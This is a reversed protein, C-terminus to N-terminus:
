VEERKFHYIKDKGKNFTEVINVLGPLLVLGEFLGVVSMILLILASTQLIGSTAAAMIASIVLIISGLAVIPAISKKRATDLSAEITKGTLFESRVREAFVSKMAACVAFGLAVCLLSTANIEVASVGWFLITCCVAAFLSSVINMIGIIGYRIAFFALVIVALFAIGIISSLISSRVGVTNIVVTDSNLTVPISGFKVKMAFDLASNYDTFTLPLNSYDTNKSMDETSFSTQTAGGMCVYISTGAALLEEYAEKGAENFELTVYTYSTYSSIKVGKIHKSGIIYTDDENSSSRLEFAGVGVAKLLSYANKFSSGGNPYSVEVRIKEGNVSYVNTSPYGKESLVTKIESISKNIDNTGTSGEPSIDYEAYMGASFDNGVRIAGAFSKFQTNGFTMPVFSFIAGVLLVISLIVIIAIAPKRKIPKM